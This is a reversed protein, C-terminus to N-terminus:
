LIKWLLGKAFINFCGIASHNLASISLSADVEPSDKWFNKATSFALVEEYQGAFIEGSPFLAALWAAFCLCFTAIVARKMRIESEKFRKTMDIKEKHHRLKEAILKKRTGKKAREYYADFGKGYARVDMYFITPEVFNAHEKAIIAEKTAYM